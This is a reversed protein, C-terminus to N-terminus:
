GEPGDPADPPTWGRSRLEKLFYAREEAIRQVEEKVAQMRAAVASNTDNIADAAVAACRARYANMARLAEVERRMWEAERAAEVAAEAEKVRRRATVEARTLRQRKPGLRELGCPAGVELFFADQLAIAAARFARQQELHGGGARRKEAQARHPTSITEITLVGTPDLPPVALFHMHPFQEDLHEVASALAGGWLNQFFEISRLKWNEYRDQAEPSASMVETPVPWSAVATMLTLTSVSVSRGMRDHGASIREMLVPEVETPPTGFCVIPVKPETIHRCASPVRAAERIVGIASPKKDTGSLAYAEIHIFQGAM